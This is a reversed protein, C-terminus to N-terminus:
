SGARNRLAWRVAFLLSVDRGNTRRVYATGLCAWLGWSVSFAFAVGVAGFAPGLLLILGSMITVCVIAILPLIRPGKNLTIFMISPGFIVLFISEFVLISLVPGGGALEPSFFLMIRDGFIVLITAMISVPAVMMLSITALLRDIEPADDRAIAAALRANFVQYIAVVGFRLFATLKLAIAIIAVDRPELVTISLSAAIDRGFDAFLAPAALLVGTIMWEKSNSYDARAASLRQSLRRACMWQTAVVIAIAIIYVVLYAAVNMEPLLLTALFVGILQLVPLVFLLPTTAIIPRDDALTHMSLVRVSALVPTAAGIFFLRKSLNSGEPADILLAALWLGILWILGLGLVLRVSFTAFGKAENLDGVAVRRSIVRVSAADVGWTLLVTSVTAISVTTLATALDEASLARALILNVVLAAAAGLLRLTVISGSSKYLEFLRKLHRM